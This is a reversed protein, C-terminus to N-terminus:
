PSIKVPPLPQPPVQAAITVAAAAANTENQARINHVLAKDAKDLVTDLPNFVTSDLVAKTAADGSDYAKDLVPIMQQLLQQQSQAQDAVNDAKRKDMFELVLWGVLTMAGLAVAGIMFYHFWLSALVQALGFCILAIMGFPWAMRLGVVQGFGVAIALILLCIGGAINLWLVQASRTADESAQLQKVYGAQNESIKKEYATQAALLSSQAQDREKLAQDADKIASALLGAQTKGDKV